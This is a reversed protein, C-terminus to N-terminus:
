GPKVGRDGGHNDLLDNEGFHEHFEDTIKALPGFCCEVFVRCLGACRTLFHGAGARLRGKEDARERREGVSPSAVGPKMWNRGVESSVREVDRRGETDGLIGVRGKGREGKHLLSGGAENIPPAARAARDEGGRGM